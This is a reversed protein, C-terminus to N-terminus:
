ITRLFQWTTNADFSADNVMRTGTSSIEPKPDAAGTKNFLVSDGLSYWLGWHGVSSETIKSKVSSSLARFLTVM